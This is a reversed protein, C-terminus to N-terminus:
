WIMIDDPTQPSRPFTQPWQQCQLSIIEVHSLMLHNGNEKGQLNWGFLSYFFLYVNM